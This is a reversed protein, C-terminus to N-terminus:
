LSFPTAFMELIQSNENGFGTYATPYNLSCLTALASHLGNHALQTVANVNSEFLELSHHLEGADAL